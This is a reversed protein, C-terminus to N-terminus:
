YIDIKYIITAYDVTSYARSIFCFVTCKSNSVLQSLNLFVVAVDLNSSDFTFHNTISTKYVPVPVATKLHGGM